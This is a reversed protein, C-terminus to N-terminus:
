SEAARLASAKVTSKLKLDYLRNILWGVLLAYGSGWIIDLIYHHNLYVASFCMLLYFLICFIRGTGFQFAFYVALLPYAVHLSPIAGFVDAARGYMESFFHTGLIQDFRVCGASSAAVDMQAPGLGYQAVYWPPAAAYWYYTSYGIVNLWFFAWPMRLAKNPITPDKKNLFYLFYASVLVFAAVFVLYAFGTVIDLAPHIHLQWWENPTLVGQPTSIGFFSKDFLYPEEVHIPGRIYDSYFRQSDYVIGTLFFPLAFKLFNRGFKGCYSLFLILYGMNLHDNRLGNLSMLTSWYFLVAVAPFAKQLWNLQRWWRPWEIVTRFPFTLTNQLLNVAQPKQM